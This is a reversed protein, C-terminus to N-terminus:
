KECIFSFLLNTMGLWLEASVPHPGSKQLSASHCIFAYIHAFHFSDLPEIRGDAMMQNLLTQIYHVPVEFYMRETLAVAREDLQSEIITYTKDMLPELGEAYFYVARQLTEICSHTKLYDLMYEMSPLYKEYYHECFDYVHELIVEKSAFHNYISGTRIGAADAIQKMSVAHYGQKAFLELAAEFINWKTGTMGLQHEPDHLRKM